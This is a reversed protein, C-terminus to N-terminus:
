FRVFGHKEMVSRLLERNKIQKEELQLYGHHARVSFDDFGTPMELEIGDSLRYLTLDIAIGRNHGSGKQPNAVYREDHILKWFRVTVQYPRYTNSM